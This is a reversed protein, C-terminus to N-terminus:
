EGRTASKAGNATVVAPVTRFLIKLDQWFSWGDIYALDLKMWSEFNINNRDAIPWPCALGPRVSLRRRHEPRYRFVEEPLPPRPGVFSMEGLLVNFLRPLEGLSTKRLFRGVKTIRPDNAGAM